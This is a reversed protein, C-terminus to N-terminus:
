SQPPVAFPRKGIPVPEFLQTTIEDASVIEVKCGTLKSLNELTIKTGKSVLRFFESIKVTDQSFTIRAIPPFITESIPLLGTLNDRTMQDCAVRVAQSNEFQVSTPITHLRGQSTEQRYYGIIRAVKPMVVFRGDCFYVTKGALHQYPSVLRMLPPVLNGVKIFVSRVGAM